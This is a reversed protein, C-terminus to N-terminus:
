MWKKKRFIHIMYLTLIVMIGLVYFYGYRMKLEPMYEFNMGYIGAILTLPMMITAIITLVKMVSNLRNSVASLYIDIASTATDRYSDALDSLRLLHDYVDRFYILMNKEILPSNTHSLELFVERQYTSIRKLRMIRRKLTFIKNLTEDTPNKFIENEITDILKDLSEIVPTYSEVLYDMLYYLINAPGQKILLPNKEIKSFTEDIFSFKKDHYTVIYNKGMFINIEDTHFDSNKNGKSVGHVIIFLYDCYDDMKPHHSINICDEVALPHFKFIGSLIEESEKKQMNEMDLWFIADKKQQLEKLKDISGTKILNNQEDLYLLTIM